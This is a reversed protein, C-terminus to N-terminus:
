GGIGKNKNIIITRVRGIMYISGTFCVLDQLGAVSCATEVADEISDEKYVKVGYRSIEKVLTETDLARPNDPKTAIVIDALPIIMELMGKYDKDKLIGIVLILKDYELDHEIAERLTSIGSLNHAADLLIRPMRSIMELRGPWRTKEMGKFIAEEDINIGKMILTEVAGVATSANIIQYKGALSLKLNKYEGIMGKLDFTSGYFSYDKLEYLIEKGVAFLTNRKKICTEEIVRYAEEHQPASVTTGGEKIIGAKEGAIQCLTNGLEATHDFSIPTIVSTEPTIVNTSDLRGGLGVEIVGVDINERSFYDFGMATVVEFETPNEFGKKKMEDIIPIVKSIFLAVEDEPIERGNIRIRETFRELYPSTFLGTKYGSEVLISTIMAATSGKGNTGAIHVSRFGKHPNGLANLLYEIRELGLRM